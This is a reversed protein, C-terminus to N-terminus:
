RNMPKQKALRNRELFSSRPIWVERSVSGDCDSGRGYPLPQAQVMGPLEHAKNTIMSVHPFEPDRACREANIQMASSSNHVAM